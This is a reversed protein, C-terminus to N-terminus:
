PGVADPAALGLIKKFHSAVAGQDSVTAVFGYGRDHLRYAQSRSSALGGLPVGAARAAAEIRAIAAAFEPSDKPVGMSLSLDHPGIFLVDICPVRAIEEANQLGRTTEIMVVAIARPDARKVAAVFARAQWATSVQPAIVGAAGAALYAPIDPNNFQTTRVVAPAGPPLAAIVERINALSFHGDEADIWLGDARSALLRALKVDPSMLFGLAGIRGAALWSKVANGPAAPAGPERPAQRPVDEYRRLGADVAALDSGVVIHRYGREYMARAQERGDARGSLAVGAARAADEVRAVAARHESSGEAVGLSRAIGTSDVHVLRLGRTKAKVISEIHSVGRADGISVGGIVAANNKGVFNEVDTLYGTVDSPGVSREGLPTVYVRRLFRLTEKLDPANDLVAGLLGEDLKPKLSPDSASQFHGVVAVPARSVANVVASIEGREARAADIHVAAVARNETLMSATVPNPTGLEAGYSLREAALLPPRDYLGAVAPRILEPPGSPVVAVGASWANASLLLVIVPTVCSLM